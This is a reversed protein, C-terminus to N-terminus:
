ILPPDQDRETHRHKAIAEIFATAVSEAAGAQAFILGPDPMGSPLEAKIGVKDTLAKSAGLVLM